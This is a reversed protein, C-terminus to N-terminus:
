DVPEFVVGPLDKEGITGTFEVAEGIDATGDIRALIRTEDLSVVAVQYTGDFGEPPVNVTTESYVTGREPLKVAALDRGGCNSCARKPTASAAGCSRCKVGLLTGDELHERWDDYEVHDHETTHENM